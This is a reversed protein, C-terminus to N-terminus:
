LSAARRSRLSEITRADGKDQAVKMQALYDARSLPESGLGAQSVASDGHVMKTTLSKNGSDANYLSLIEKAALSAATTSGSDFMKNFETTQAAFAKDSGKKKEAWAAIKAWNEKGGVVEHVTKVAAQSSEMNKAYFERVGIMVVNAKDKGLKETLKALDVKSLDGSEVAERFITDAEQPSVNAEKLLAVVADAADDGYEPYELVAEQEKAKDAEAAKDAAEKEEAAKADAAVKDAEAKAKEEATPEKVPPANNVEPAKPAGSTGHQGEVASPPVGEPIGKTSLDGETGPPQEDAM